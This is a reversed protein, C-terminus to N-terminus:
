LIQSAEACIGLNIGMCLVPRAREAAQIFRETRHCVKDANSKLAWGVATM